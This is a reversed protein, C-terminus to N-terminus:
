AAEIKTVDYGAEDIANKIAEDSIDKSLTVVASNKELSVDASNVGDLGELAEKVHKVCNQCGMGEIHILKKM